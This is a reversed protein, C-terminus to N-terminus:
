LKLSLGTIFNIGAQPFLGDIKQDKGEYSYRYVWGNSEYEENLINNVQLYISIDGLQKLSLNYALRLNNVLYPDLKRQNSSTNDLYQKGVYKTIWQITLLPLPKLSIVSSATINPSFSLDSQTLTDSGQGPLDWADYYTILHPIKNRSLTLNGKWDLLAFPTYGWGLEIGTRYSKDINVMIPSGVDNIEGTLVLQNKYDMYFFNLSLGWNSRSHDYGLELNTLQEAKPTKGYDADTFNSRSPERNAMGLYLQLHNAANPKWSIGTKPNFFQYDHQQDLYSFGDESGKLSYNLKRFQLDGLLSIGHKLSWSAKAFVNFDSKKGTNRYWEYDFSPEVYAASTWIVKGFHRGEYQNYAIGSSIQLSEIKTNFSATIGGFNNDLCKRIIYDVLNTTDIQHPMQIYQRPSEDEKYEEYFGAGQTYHLGISFDTKKSFQHTFSLMYHSQKYDDVQNKYFQAQGNTDYYLGSPNFTRNTDLIESSIGYWAQYTREKGTLITAKLRNNKNFWSATVFSSQLDSTARDIYGDSNVKSLRADFTWHERLIGSGLRLTNHFTNFSGAESSIEAYPKESMATTEINISAGFSAAGNSSTGVGRQIQVNDISAAIDPIDVWYVEHSEPDNFPMGDLTVNVRTMDTGRIRIGTYGVGSGGDSTTVTSASQELLYPLDRGSSRQEIEKRTITTVTSPAQKPIRDARIVVEDALIPKRKLRIELKQVPNGQCIQIDDAYGLLSSKLVLQGKPLNSLKFYGLENTTTNLFTNELQVIVGPLVEGNEADTVIGSLSSQAHLTMAGLLALFLCVIKKMPEPKDQLILRGYVSNGQQSHAQYSAPSTAYLLFQIVPGPM